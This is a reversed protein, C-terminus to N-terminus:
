VFNHWVFQCCVCMYVGICGVVAVYANVLVHAIIYSDYCRMEEVLHLQGRRRSDFMGTCDAPVSPGAVHPRRCTCRMYEMSLPGGDFCGGSICEPLCGGADKEDGTFNRKASLLNNVYM